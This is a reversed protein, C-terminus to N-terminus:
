LFSRCVDVMSQDTYLIHYLTILSKAHLKNISHILINKAQNLSRLSIM